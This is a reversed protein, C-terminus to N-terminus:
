EHPLNNKITQQNYLIKITEKLLDKFKQKSFKLAQNRLINRDFNMKHFVAVAEKLSNKDQKHFFVGTKKDLLTELAGGKAYAIVPCGCSLAELPVIGFDEEGPFILAQAQNYYTKIKENSQWGLFEINPGSQQQLRNKEPGSGIIKLPLNLENFTKIAIDIKKYPVLASIILFFKEKLEETIQYFDTDVPPYVIISDRAYYKKIKAAINQSISIFSDIRENTKLDWRKLYKLTYKILLRVPFITKSFYDLYFDWAYRMPTFCYCLHVANKPPIIGKAACHSLSIILDFNDLKFSEIALPFLPLYYRYKTKRWPLKQIFSTEIKKEQLFSSLKEKEHHLTYIPAEPFLECFIELVKEGGRMGNLWDHILAVKM